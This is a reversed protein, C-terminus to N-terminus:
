GGVNADDDTSFFKLVAEGTCAVAFRAVETCIRERDQWGLELMASAKLRMKTLWPLVGSDCEQMWDTIFGRAGSSSSLHWPLRASTRTMRLMTTTDKRAKRMRRGFGPELL